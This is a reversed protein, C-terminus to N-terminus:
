ANFMVKESNFAKTMAGVLVVGLLITGLISVGFQAGTITGKLIGQMALTNGYLPIM